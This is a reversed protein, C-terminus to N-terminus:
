LFEDKPCNLDSTWDDSGVCNRCVFLEHPDVEQKIM